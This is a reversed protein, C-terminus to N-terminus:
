IPQSLYTRFSDSAPTAWHCLLENTILLNDTRNQGGAGSSFAQLCTHKCAKKNHRPIRSKYCSPDTRMRSKVSSFLRFYMRCIAKSLLHYFIGFWSYFVQPAKTCWFITILTWTRSAYHYFSGSIFIPLSKLLTLAKVQLLRKNRSTFCESNQAEQIQNGFRIYANAPDVTKTREKFFSVASSKSNRQVWSTWCYPLHSLRESKLVGDWCYNFQSPLYIKYFCGNRHM